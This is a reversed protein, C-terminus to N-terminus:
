MFSRLCALHWEDRFNGITIQQVEATMYRHAEYAQMVMNRMTGRLDKDKVKNVIGIATSMPVGQQRADMLTEATTALQNCYTDNGSTNAVAPASAMLSLSLIIKKM